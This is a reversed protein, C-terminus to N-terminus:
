KEVKKLYKSYEKDFPLEFEKPPEKKTPKLQLNLINTLYNIWQNASAQTPIDWGPVKSYDELLRLLRDLSMIDGGYDKSNSSLVIKM